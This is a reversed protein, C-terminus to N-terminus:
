VVNKFTKRTVIEKVRSWKNKRDKYDLEPYIVKIIDMVSMGTDYLARMHKVQENTYTARGNNEGSRAKSLVDFNHQSSYKVNDEHSLWELNDINNNTRNFDKHNVDSLNNPNPIFVEAIIRHVRRTTRKNAGMTVELYGDSNLRQKLEGRKGFIRGLNSVKYEQGEFIYDKFEEKM